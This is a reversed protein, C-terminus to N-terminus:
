AELPCSEGVALLWYVEHGKEWAVSVLQAFLQASTEM